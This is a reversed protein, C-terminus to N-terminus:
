EVPGAKPLGTLLLTLRSFLPLQMKQFIRKQMKQAAGADLLSSAHGSHSRRCIPVPMGALISASRPVWGSGLQRTTPVPKVTLNTQAGHLL